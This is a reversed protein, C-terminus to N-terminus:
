FTIYNERKGYTLQQLRTHNNTCYGAYSAPNGSSHQQKKQLPAGSGRFTQSCTLNFNEKVARIGRTIIGGAVSAIRIIM